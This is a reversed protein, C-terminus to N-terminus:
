DRYVQSPGIGDQILTRNICELLRDRIRNVSAYISKLPRGLQEAVSKTSQDPSYRLMILVRDRDRLKGLCSMLANHRREVFDGRQSMEAGIQEIFESSFVRTDRKQRDRWKLV